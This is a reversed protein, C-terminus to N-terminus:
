DCLVAVKHPPKNDLDHILQDIQASNVWGAVSNDPTLPLEDDRYWVAVEYTDSVPGRGYMGDGYGISLQYYGIQVTAHYKIFDDKVKYQKFNLDKFKVMIM